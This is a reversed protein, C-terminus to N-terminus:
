NSPTTWWIPSRTSCSTAPVDVGDGISGGQDGTVAVEQEVRDGIQHVVGDFVAAFRAPHAHLDPLAIAAGDDRDGVVARSNGGVLALVHEPAEIPELVAPAGGAVAQPEAQHRRDGTQM